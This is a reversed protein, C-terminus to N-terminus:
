RSLFFLCFVLSASCLPFSFSFVSCVSSSFSVSCYLFRPPGLLSAGLSLVPPISVGRVCTWVPSTPKRSLAESRSRLGATVRRTMWQTRFNKTNPRPPNSPSRGGADHVRWQSDSESYFSSFLEQFDVSIIFVFFFPSFIRALSLIFFCLCDSFLSFM